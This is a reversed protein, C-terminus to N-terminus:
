DDYHGKCRYVTVVEGKLSYVIRHESDLRKSARGGTGKLSETKGLGGTFPSIEIDRLLVHLKLYLTRNETKWYLLNDFAQSEFVYNPYLRKLDALTNIGQQRERILWRTLENEQDLHEIKSIHFVSESIETDTKQVLIAIKLHDWIDESPFSVAVTNYLYATALGDCKPKDEGKQFRFQHKLYQALVQEDEDDIFPYRHFDLM